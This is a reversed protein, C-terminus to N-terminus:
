AAQEQDAPFTVPDSVESLWPPFDHDKPMWQQEVVAWPVDFGFRDRFTRYNALAVDMKQRGSDFSADNTPRIVPQVIPATGREDDRRRYFIWCWDWDEVAAVRKIWAQQDPTGGYIPLAAMQQRARWYMFRQVDMSRSAVLNLCQEKITRGKADGGYSKLDIAFKPLLKDIKARLKVGSPDTWLIAVESMGGRMPAGLEPHNLILAAMHRVRRDMDETMIIKGRIIADDRWIRAEKSRFDEFPSIVAKDQYVAEGELVLAHLASGFQMEPSPTRIPRDPNHRSGYYWSAPDRHLVVLDTSGLRDQAFYKEDSLGIYVGDPLEIM